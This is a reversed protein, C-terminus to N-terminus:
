KKYYDTEEQEIELPLGPMWDPTINMIERIREKPFDRDVECVIEDHVTFLTWIGADELRIIADRMVDRATAQCVNETLFGGWVKYYIDGRTKQVQLGGLSKVNFYPLVRGSPLEVNYDTVSCKFADKELRAWFEKIKPNSARFEMVTKWANV